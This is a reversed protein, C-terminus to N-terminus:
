AVLGLDVRHREGFAPLQQGGTALVVGDADPVEGVLATQRDQAPVLIPDQAHVPRGIVLADDGATM